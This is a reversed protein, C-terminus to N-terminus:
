KGYSSGCAPSSAASGVGAFNVATSNAVVDAERGSSPSGDHLAEFSGYSLDALAKALSRPSYRHSEFCLVKRWYPFRAGHARGESERVGCREARLQPRLGAITLSFNRWWPDPCSLRWAEVCVSARFENKLPASFFYSRFSPLKLQFLLLGIGRYKRGLPDLANEFKVIQLCTSMALREVLRLGAVWPWELEVSSLLATWVLSSIALQMSNDHCGVTSRTPRTASLGCGALSRLTFLSAPRRPLTQSDHEHLKM